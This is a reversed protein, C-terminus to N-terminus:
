RAGSAIRQQYMRLALVRTAAEALRSAPLRGTRVAQVVGHRARGPYPSNLVLDDGALLSRVAGEGSNYPGNIPGMGQSDTVAVGHFGLTDRLLGQVVGKSISAPVGPEIADVAVHGTMVVPAGAKIAAEFTVLDTRRLQALTKGQEPLSHHSDGTVTGLGPFHKVAPIIGADLYGQVTATVMAAAVKTDPSYTRSGMVSSGDPDVDAVPAMVMTVGLRRLTRGNERAVKTAYGPDGAAGVSAASPVVDVGVKLRQVVGGEQDISILLPLGDPQDGVDHLVGTLRDVQDADAIVEPRLFVGGFAHADLAQAASDVGHMVRNQAAEAPTPDLGDYGWFGPMLVTSAQEPVTMAAVLGRARSLEGETPGWGTPTDPDVTETAKPSQTPSTSRTPNGSGQGSSGGSCGALLLATALAATVLARPTAAARRVATSSMASWQTM